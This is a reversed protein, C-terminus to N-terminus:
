SQGNLCYKLEDGIADFGAVLGEEQYLEFIAQAIRRRQEPVQAVVDKEPADLSAAILIEYRLKNEGACFYFHGERSVPAPKGRKNYVRQSCRAYEANVASFTEAIGNKRSAEVLARVRKAGGDTLGPLSSLLEEETFGQNVLQLVTVYESTIMSCTEFSQTAKGSEAQAPTILWGYLCLTLFLKRM